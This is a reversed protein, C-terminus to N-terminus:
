ARGGELQPLGRWLTTLAKHATRVERLGSATIRFYRPARGGREARPEGLLSTVVGRRELRELAAYVSGLVVTRGTNAAIEDSIPVGYAEDGIRMIALLIMLEFNGLYGRSAMEDISNILDLRRPLPRTACDAPRDYQNFL